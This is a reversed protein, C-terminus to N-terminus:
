LPKMREPKDSFGQIYKEEGGYMGCAVDMEDEKGQYGL